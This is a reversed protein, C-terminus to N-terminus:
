LAAAANQKYIESKVGEFTKMEALLNFFVQKLPSSTLARDTRCKMTILYYAKISDPQVLEGFIRPM